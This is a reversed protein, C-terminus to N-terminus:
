ATLDGPRTSRTVCTVRSRHCASVRVLEAGTDRSAHPKRDARVRAQLLELVVRVRQQRAQALPLRHGPQGHEVPPEDRPTIERHLHHPVRLGEGDVVRAEGGALHDPRAHEREVAVLVPPVPFRERAREPEGGHAIPERLHHAFLGLPQDVGDLRGAVRLQPAGDGARQRDRHHRVREAELVGVDSRHQAPVLPDHRRHGVDGRAKGQAVRRRSGATRAGSHITEHRM